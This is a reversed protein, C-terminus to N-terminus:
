DLTTHFRGDVLEKYQGNVRLVPGGEVRLTRSVSDIAWKTKMQGREVRKDLFIKETFTNIIKSFAFSGAEIIAHDIISHMIANQITITAIDLVQEAVMHKAETLGLSICSIFNRAACMVELKTDSIESNPGSYEWIFFRTPARECSFKISEGPKLCMHKSFNIIALYSHIAVINIPVITENIITVAM